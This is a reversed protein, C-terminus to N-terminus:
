GDLKDQTAAQLASHLAGILNYNVKGARRRMALGDFSLVAGAFGVIEGTRAEELMEELLAITAPNPERQYTLAGQKLPVVKAM